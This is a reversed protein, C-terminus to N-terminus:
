SSSSWGAPWTTRTPIAGLTTVTDLTWAFSYAVSSGESLAFALTGVIILGALAGFLIILRRAFM